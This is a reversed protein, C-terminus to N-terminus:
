NGPIATTKSLKLEFYKIISTIIFNITLYFAGALVFVEIPSWTEAILKKAAGTIEIITITSALSTAKVMLIIENGYAPLAQHLAIPFVIERYLAVGSM